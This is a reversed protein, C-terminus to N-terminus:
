LVNRSARLVLVCQEHKDLRQDSKRGEESPMNTTAAGQPKRLRLDNGDAQQGMIYIKRSKGPSGAIATSELTGATM